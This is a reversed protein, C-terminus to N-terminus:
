LILTSFSIIELGGYAGVYCLLSPTLATRRKRQPTGHTFGFIASTVHPFPLSRLVQAFVFSIGSLLPQTVLSSLTPMPSLSPLSLEDTHKRVSNMSFKDDHSVSWICTDSDVLEEPKLSAIDSILANIEAKTRGVNFRRSWDWFWSGNAIRQQIFCDKNKKLHYLRNYRIYLPDDGLWTDKWFRISSGDGVQNMVMFRRLWMFGYLMRIISFSAMEVLSGIVYKILTLRGGIFLLNAKWGSLRAKFRDILYQWNAIRSMNSGIPLGLYTFLFFGVEFGTYSAMIESSGVKVGHFMNAALGDNLAMNLGEMVIIFLFPSLPDGQRLGRKLSFESTPSGNILIFTRASVLGAETLLSLIFWLHRIDHKLLDWFKEIFMFSYGNSRLAKQSGCDEKAHAYWFKLHSKLDKIKTHLHKSQELNSIAAWNEKVISEFDIDNILRRLSKKFGKVDYHLAAVVEIMRNMEDIFSLGKLYKRSYNAFSTSCKGARSTSSSWSCAKNEKIFNKFGHPKSNDSVVENAVM